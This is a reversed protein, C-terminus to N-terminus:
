PMRFESNMYEVFDETLINETAWEWEAISYRNERVIEPWRETRGLELRGARAQSFEWNLGLFIRRYFQRIQYAGFDDLEEGNSAKFRRRAFEPNDLSKEIGWARNQFYISGAEFRLLEHNQRLELGLFLIGAVVALNAILTLWRNLRDTDM